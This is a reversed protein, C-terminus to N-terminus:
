QAGAPPPTLGPVYPARPLPPPPPGSSEDVGRNRLERHICAQLRYLSDDTFKEPTEAFRKALTRCAASPEARAIALNGFTVMVTVLCVFCGRRVVPHMEQEKHSPEIIPFCAVVHWHHQQQKPGTISPKKPGTPRTIGSRPGRWQPAAVGYRLWTAGFAIIIWGIRPIDSVLQQISRREVKLHM